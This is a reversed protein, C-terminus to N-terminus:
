HATPPELGGRMAVMEFNRSFETVYDDVQKKILESYRSHIYTHHTPCLPVLNTPHNNSHDHDYHHVAVVLSEKCIICEKNHYTFCLKSYARSNSSALLEEYGKWNPNNEKSRFMTNSCSYSCTQKQRPSGVSCEFPNGCVPCSVTEIPYKHAKKYSLIRSCDLGKDQFYFIIKTRTRSNVTLGLEAFLSNLSSHEDLVSQTVGELKPNLMIITICLTTNASLVRAKPAHLFLEFRKERVLM